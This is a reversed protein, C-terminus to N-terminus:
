SWWPDFRKQKRLRKIESMPFDHEFTKAAYKKLLNSLRLQNLQKRRNKNIIAKILSDHWSTQAYVSVHTPNAIGIYRGDASIALPKCAQTKAPCSGVSITAVIHWTKYDVIYTEKLSGCILLPVLKAIALSKLEQDFSLTCHHETEINWKRLTKDLSTSFLIYDSTPSFELATIANTHGSLSFYSKKIAANYPILTITFGAQAPNYNNDQAIFSQNNSLAIATYHEPTFAASLPKYLTVVPENKKTSFLYFHFHRKKLLICQRDPSLAIDVVHHNQLISEKEHTRYNTYYPPALRCKSIVCENRPCFSLFHSNCIHAVAETRKENINEIIIGRYATSYAFFDQIFSFDISDAFIYNRKYLESWHTSAYKQELFAHWTPALHAFFTKVLKEHYVDPHETFPTNIKEELADITLRIGQQLTANTALAHTVLNSLELPLLPFQIKETTCQQPRPELGIYYRDLFKEQFHPDAMKSLIIEQLSPPTKQMPILYVSFCLYAVTILFLPSLFRMGM